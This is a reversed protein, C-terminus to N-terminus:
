PAQQLARGLRHLCHAGATGGRRQEPLNVRAKAGAHLGQGELRQAVKPPGLRQALPQGLASRWRRGIRQQARGQGQTPAVFLGGVFRERQHVLGHFRGLAATGGAALSAEDIAAQAPEQALPPRQNGRGLGIREALLRSFTGVRWLHGGTYPDRLEVVSALALLSTLLKKDVAAAAM